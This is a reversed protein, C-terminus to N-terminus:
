NEGKDKRRAALARQHGPMATALAFADAEHGLAAEMTQTWTQRSVSKTLMLSEHPLALLEAVLTRSAEELSARPVVRRTLGLRRAEEADMTGATLMLDLAAPVGLKSQLLFSCGGDPILGLRVFPFRLTADDAMILIDAAMALSAGGGAAAGQVSAIVIKSMKILAIHHLQATLIRDRWALPTEPFDDTDAGGCFSRGLGQLLVIRIAPDTAISQLHIGLEARMAGSMANLKDPRNLTLVAVGNEKELLVTPESSM